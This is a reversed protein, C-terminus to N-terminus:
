RSLHVVKNFVIGEGITKPGQRNTPDKALQNLVLQHKEPLPMAWTMAGSGLLGYDKHHCVVTRASSIIDHDIQYLFFLIVCRMEINHETLLM